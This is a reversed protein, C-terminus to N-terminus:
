EGAAALRAEAAGGEHAIKSHLATPVLQMREGGKVHHWTFGNVQRWAKVKAASPKGRTVFDMNGAQMSELAAQADAAAFDAATGKM